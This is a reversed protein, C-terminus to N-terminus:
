DSITLVTKVSAPAPSTTFGILNPNSEILSIMDDKSVMRPPAGKGTFVSRAWFASWQSSSKRIVRKLFVSFEKNNKKVAIPIAPKGNTFNDLKGLYINKVDKKSITNTNSPHVIVDVSASANMTLILFFTCLSYSTRM